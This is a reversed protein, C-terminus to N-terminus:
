NPQVKAVKLQVKGFVTPLVKGFEGWPKFKVLFPQLLCFRQASVVQKFCSIWGALTTVVWPQVLPSKFEGIYFGRRAHVFLQKSKYAVLLYSGRLSDNLGFFM